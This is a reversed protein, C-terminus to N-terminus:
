LGRRAKEGRDRGIGLAGKPTGGVREDHKEAM